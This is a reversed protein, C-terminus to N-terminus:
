FDNDKKVYSKFEDVRDQLEELVKTNIDKLSETAVFINRFRYVLWIGILTSIFLLSWPTPSYIQFCGFLLMLMQIRITFTAAQAPNMGNAIAQQLASNAYIDDFRPLFTLKLLLAWVFDVLFYMAFIVCCSGAGETSVPAILSFLMFGFASAENNSIKIRTPYWSFATLALLSSMMIWGYAGLLMPVANLAGLIGIGLSISASQSALLGNGNNAFRYIAAFVFWVVALIIKDAFPPLQEVLPFGAEPMAAVSVIVCLLLIPWFYKKLSNLHGCLAILITGGFALIPQWFKYSGVFDQEQYFLFYAALSVPLLVSAIILISSDGLGSQNFTGKRAVRGLWVAPIIFSLFSLGLIIFFSMNMATNRM